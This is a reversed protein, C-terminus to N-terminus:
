ISPCRFFMLKGNPIHPIDITKLTEISLCKQTSVLSTNEVIHHIEEINDNEENSM